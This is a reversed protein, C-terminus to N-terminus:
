SIIGSVIITLLTDVLALNVYPIRISHAGKNVEGFLNKYECFM